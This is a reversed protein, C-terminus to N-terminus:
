VASWPEGMISLVGLMGNPMGCVCAMKKCLSISLSHWFVPLLHLFPIWIDGYREPNSSFSWRTGGNHEVYGVHWLAHWLRMGNKKCLSISLSHWFRALLHLFPISIEGYRDPNSSFSWRTGGNHEVYGVHWLAHWLRMGNKKCLSIYLSHWFRALLHLFPISIEGYRDPNSSFSWHTGGNHEVYGVHWVAHWLRM